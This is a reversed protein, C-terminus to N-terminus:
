CEKETLNWRSNTTIKLIFLWCRIRLNFCWIEKIEILVKFCVHHRCFHLDNQKWSSPEPQLQKQDKNCLTKQTTSITLSRKPICLRYSAVKLTKQIIETSALVNTHDWQPSKGEREWMQQPRKFAPLTQELGPSNGPGLEFLIARPHFTVCTWVRGDWNNFWWLQEIGAKVKFSYFFFQQIYVLTFSVVSVKNNFMPKIGFLFIDMQAPHEVYEKKKKKKPSHIGLM